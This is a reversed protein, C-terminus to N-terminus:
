PDTSPTAPSAAHHTVKQGGELERLANAGAKLGPVRERTYRAVAADIYARPRAIGEAIASLAASEKRDFAEAQSRTWGAPLLRRKRVRGRGQIIHDFDFRWRGTRKDRYISM